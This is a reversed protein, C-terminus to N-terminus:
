RVALGRLVTRRWPDQLGTPSSNGITLPFSARVFEMFEHHPNRQLIERMMYVNQRVALSMADLDSGLAGGVWAVFGVFM